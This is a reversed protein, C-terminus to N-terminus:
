SRPSHQSSLLVARSDRNGAWLTHNQVVPPHTCHIITILQSAVIAAAGLTPFKVLVNVMKKEVHSDGVGENKVLM